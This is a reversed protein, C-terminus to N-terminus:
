LSTVTSQSGGGYTENVIWHLTILQLSQKCFLLVGHVQPSSEPLLYELM